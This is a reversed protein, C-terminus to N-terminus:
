LSLQCFMHKTQKTALLFPLHRQGTYPPLPPIGINKNAGTTRIVEGTLVHHFMSTSCLLFLCSDTLHSSGCQAMLPIIGNQIKSSRNHKYTHTNM